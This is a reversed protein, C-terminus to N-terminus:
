CALHSRAPDAKVGRRDLVLDGARLPHPWSAPWPIDAVATFDRLPGLKVLLYVAPRASQHMRIANRVTDPDLGGEASWRAAELM